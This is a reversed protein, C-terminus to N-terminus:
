LLRVMRGTVTGALLELDEPQRRSLEPLPIGAQELALWIAEREQPSLASSGLCVLSSFEASRAIGGVFRERFLERPLTLIAEASKQIEDNM